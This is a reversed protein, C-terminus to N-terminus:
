SCSFGFLGPGGLGGGGFRGGGGFNPPAGELGVAAGLTCGPAGFTGGGIGAFLPVIFLILALLAGGTAGLLGWGAGTM